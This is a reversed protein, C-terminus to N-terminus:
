LYGHQVGSLSVPLPIWVEQLHVLPFDPNGLLMKCFTKELTEQQRYVELCNSNM